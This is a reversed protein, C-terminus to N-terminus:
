LAERKWHSVTVPHGSLRRATVVKEIAEEVPGSPHLDELFLGELAPLVDTVREEVLDQLALAIFQAFIRSLYLNKVGTFPHLIELWSLNYKADYLWEPPLEHFHLHEVMYISPFFSPCVQAVSLLLRDLDDCVIRLKTKDDATQTLPLSGVQIGWYYFESDLYLDVHTENLAQFRTTRRMFGALQPINSRLEEDFFTISISDLLPVDIRAVIDELFESDGQFEFRSLPSLSTRTVPPPRRNGPDYSSPFSAFEIILSKLNPLMALNTVMTEPSFYGSDPINSLTLNVLHTVSLLLKPLGPFGISDLELSQLRPVTGSLFGDPLVPAPGFDLFERYFYLRLDILAPFQVQMASVFRQLKSSTLHILDIGCIRNRYAFAVDFDHEDSEFRNLKDTIIIPFTPWIGTLEMRTNPHCVLTLHLFNPSGFVVSRWRRCVHVLRHWKWSPDLRHNEELFILRDFHFILLLVDDPLINITVCGAWVTLALQLCPVYSTRKDCSDIHSVLQDPVNLNPTDLHHTERSGSPGDM